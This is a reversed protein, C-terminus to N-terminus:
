RTLLPFGSMVVSAIQYTSSFDYIQGLKPEWYRGHAIWHRFKFAGKIQGVVHAQVTSHQKWGELIDEELSSRLGKSQYIAQFHKSLPDSKGRVCRLIFDERLAAELSSLVGLAALTDTERKRAALEAHLEAPSYFSFRTQFQLNTQSYYVRLAADTDRQWDAVDGLRATRDDFTYSRLRGM